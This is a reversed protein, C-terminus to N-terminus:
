QQNKGKAQGMRLIYEKVDGVGDLRITSYYIFINAFSSGDVLFGKIKGEFFNLIRVEREVGSEAASVRGSQTM